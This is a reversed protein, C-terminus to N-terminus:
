VTGGGGGPNVKFGCGCIASSSMWRTVPCVTGGGGGPHTWLVVTGHPKVPLRDAEIILDALEHWPGNGAVGLNYVHLGYRESLLASWTKAQATDDGMTYSDGVAIVDLPTGSVKDNRFGYRDTTFSGDRYEAYRPDRSLEGHISGQFRVNPLYRRM